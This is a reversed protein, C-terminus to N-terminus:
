APSKEFSEWFARSLDAFLSAGGAVRSLIYDAEELTLKSRMVQFDPNDLSVLGRRAAGHVAERLVESDGHLPHPVIRFRTEIELGPAQGVLSEYAALVAGDFQEDRIPIARRGECTWEAILGSLFEDATMRAAM